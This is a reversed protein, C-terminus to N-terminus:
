NNSLNVGKLDVASLKEFLKLKECIFAEKIVITTDVTSYIYARHERKHGTDMDTDM